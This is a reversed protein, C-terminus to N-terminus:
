LMLNDQKELKVLAKYRCFILLHNFVDVIQNDITIPNKSAEFIVLILCDSIGELILSLLANFKFATIESNSEPIRPVQFPPKM